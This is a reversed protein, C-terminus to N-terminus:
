ENALERNMVAAIEKCVPEVEAQLAWVPALMELSKNEWVVTNDSYPRFVAYEMSDIFVQLNFKDTIKVWEDQTGEYASIAAGSQSLKSQAEHSGLYEMLQWTADPNKTTASAAWGLGNYISARSGDNASPLVACDAHASVYEDELFDRVMYPGTTIMATKGTKFMAYSGNGVLREGDPAWKNKILNVIFSIAEITKPNDFGSKTKDASIIEGGNQYVFNYWSGQNHSLQASFGFHEPTTLKEAAERFTDWTWTEDPYAMGAEDFMSKNYWLAITDWDKPIAYQHGDEGKYVNVLSEPFKTLDVQESQDIKDTLDMLIGANAYKASDNSHMWFIDPLEGGTASAELMTWYQDWPSVEIEVKIGTQKEFDDLVSRIGESQNDDWTGLRLTTDTGRGSDTNGSSGCGALSITMAAIAAVYMVNRCRM